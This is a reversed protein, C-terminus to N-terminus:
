KRGNTKSKLSNILSNIKKGILCFSNFLDDYINKSIYGLDKALIIYYRSEEISGRAIILYQIFEKRSYRGMGEAINAPISIASRLLQQTLVFYEKKPFFKTTEYVKLVANHSLQWIELDEFSKIKSNAIKYRL